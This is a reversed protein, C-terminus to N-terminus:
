NPKKYFYKQKIDVNNIGKSNNIFTADAYLNLCNSKTFKYNLKNLIYYSQKFVDIKVM